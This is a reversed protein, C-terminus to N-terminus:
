DMDLVYEAVGRVLADFDSAAEDDMSAEEEEDTAHSEEDANAAPVDELFFEAIGRVLAQLAREDDAAEAEMMREAAARLSPIRTALRRLLEVISTAPSLILELGMNSCETVATHM